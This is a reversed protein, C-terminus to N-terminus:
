FLCRKCDEVGLETLLLCIPHTFVSILYMYAKIECLHVYKMNLELTYELGFTHCESCKKHTDGFALM